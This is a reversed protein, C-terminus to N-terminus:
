WAPRLSRSHEALYQDGVSALDRDPREAGAVFHARPGDGDEGVLVAVRQVPELGVLGVLDAFRPVGHPRIEGDLLDHAGGPQRAGVGDVGAVPEQRLVGLQGPRALLRADREDAGARVDQLQGAVLRAGHGGGAGGAYRDQAGGLGGGVHVFQDAGGVVDAEGHEDLGDGAAASASHAADLVGGRQALGDLRRGALGGGGETVGGDEQLLGDDLGAVDLHLDEGVAVAVDDVEELAVTRHLAAVLLDDLQGRGRVEVRGQAVPDAGVGYPEGPLDAVAVRAGDLEEEVALAVVDEDLHVGTDLDLVRDGLLDGVDVEHLGLQADGGPGGEGVEPEGLLGDRQAAGGELATDGGLVGGVAEAGVGAADAGVARGAAGADAEVAAGGVGTRLDAGVEVRHQDFQGAPAPVEGGGDVPGPAGDGLETDPAHGRVDREQLGDEVVRVELRTVDGRREDLLARM